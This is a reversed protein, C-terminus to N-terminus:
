ATPDNSFRTEVSHAHAKLGETTALTVISRCLHSLGQRSLKQVSIMKVFDASSLGGRTRAAGGTPLIHNTGAVYDGAAVASYGGLFISGAARIQPLLGLADDLLTLHEPAFQNVLDVGEAADGTIIIAGQRSLAKRAVASGAPSGLLAAISRQVQLALQRSSTIFVAVADADHEAQAILEAAIWAPRGKSGLVVLETPGAVFDIGCEGAVLRKAAAVYRNGPGVIKDVRPVSETGHAFAAIAQAGGLRFVRKLGLLDAAVLVTAAPRPCAILIEPVGAVLAPIASMLVTSPLAFRGGPVYCAVRELPRVIQRLKIGRSPETQWPRPLQLRAVARINRAALDLAAVFGSPVQRYAEGIEEASVTFGTRRLDLGDFQRAYRVLARDGNRRVDELIRRATAEAERLRSQRARLVRGLAKKNNGLIISVTM